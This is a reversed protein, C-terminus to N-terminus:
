ILHPTGVHLWMVRFKAYRWSWNKWSLTGNLCCTLQQISLRSRYSACSCQMDTLMRVALRSQIGSVKALVLMVPHLETQFKALEQVSLVIIAADVEVDDVNDNDADDETVGNGFAQTIQEEDDLDAALEMLAVELKNDIADSDKQQKTADFQKLMAKAILNIIHLFCCVRNVESYEDIQDDMHSVMTDNNSM